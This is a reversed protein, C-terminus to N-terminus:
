KATQWATFSKTASRGRRSTSVRASSIATTVRAQQAFRGAPAARGDPGPLLCYVASATRHRLGFGVAIKLVPWASIGPWTRPPDECFVNFFSFPAANVIGTPGVTTVWAIPRPLVFSTMVKYRERPKLDNPSYQMRPAGRLTPLACRAWWEARACPTTPCPAHAGKGHSGRGAQPSLNVREAPSPSEGCAFEHISGRM